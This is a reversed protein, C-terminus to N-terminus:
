LKPIIQNHGLCQNIKTLISFFTQISLVKIKYTNSLMDKKIPDFM